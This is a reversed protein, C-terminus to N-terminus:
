YREREKNIRINNNKMLVNYNQSMMLIESSYKDHTEAM